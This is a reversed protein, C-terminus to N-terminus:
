EKDDYGLMHLAGASNRWDERIKVWLQLNVRTGLMWEMEARARTGIEKLMAGSIEGTFAGNDAWHINQAGVKINSGKLEAIATAISTFPPCVAVDAKCPCIDAFKEKLAQCLAATEAATKNMKWNGAIFVKRSM